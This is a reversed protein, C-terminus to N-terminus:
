LITSGWAHIVNWIVKKKNLPSLIFFPPIVHFTIYRTKIKCLADWTSMCFRLIHNKKRQAVLGDLIIIISINSYMHPINGKLQCIKIYMTYVYYIIKITLLYKTM